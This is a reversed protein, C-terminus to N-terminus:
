KTPKKKIAGCYACRTSNLERLIAAEFLKVLDLDASRAAELLQPNIRFSRTPKSM